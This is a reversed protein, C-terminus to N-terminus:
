GVKQIMFFPSSPPSAVQYGPSFLGICLSEAPYFSGHALTFKIKLSCMHQILTNKLSKLAPSSEFLACKM